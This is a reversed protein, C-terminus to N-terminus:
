PRTWAIDDYSLLGLESIASAHIKYYPLFQPAVEMVMEEETRYPNRYPDAPVHQWTVLWGQGTDQWELILHNTFRPTITGDYTYEHASLDWSKTAYGHTWSYMVVREPVEETYEYHFDVVVVGRDHAQIEIRKNQEQARALPQVPPALPEAGM